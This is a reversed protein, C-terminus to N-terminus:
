GKKRKANKDRAFSRNKSPSQMTLNSRKNNYTNNDKHAVDKGDGKRAHGAKEMDRRAQVRNARKKIQEPKGHYNNYESKYDRKKM